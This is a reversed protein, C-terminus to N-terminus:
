HFQLTHWYLTEHVKARVERMDAPQLWLLPVVILGRASYDDIEYARTKLPGHQPGGAQLEEMVWGAGRRAALTPKKNTQLIHSTAQPRRLSCRDHLLSLYYPAIMLSRRLLRALEEM